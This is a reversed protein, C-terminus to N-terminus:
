CVSHTAMIIENMILCVFGKREVIGDQGVDEIKDLPSILHLSPQTRLMTLYISIPLPPERQYSISPKTCFLRLELANAKGTPM